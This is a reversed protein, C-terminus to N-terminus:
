SRKDVAPHSVIVASVLVSIIAPVPSVRKNVLSSLRTQNCCPKQCGLKQLFNKLFNIFGKNHHQKDAITAHLFPFTSVIENQVMLIMEICAREELFAIFLHVM